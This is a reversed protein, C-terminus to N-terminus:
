SIARGVSSIRARDYTLTVIDYTQRAAVLIDYSMIDYTMIYSGEHYRVHIDYEIDYTLVYQSSIAYKYRYIVIDYTYILITRYGLQV